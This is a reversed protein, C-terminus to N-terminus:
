KTNRKCFKKHDMWHARQHESSCYRALGGCGGACMALPSATSDDQGGIGGAGGAGGDGDGDDGDCRRTRGCGPLACSMHTHLPDRLFSHEYSPLPATTVGGAAIAEYIPRVFAIEPQAAVTQRMQKAYEVFAVRVEETYDRRQAASLKAAVHPPPAAQVRAASVNIGGRASWRGLCEVLCAFAYTLPRQTRVTAGAGGLCAHLRTQAGRVEPHHLALEDIPANGRGDDTSIEHLLNVALSGLSAALSVSTGSPALVVGAEKWDGLHYVLPMVDLLQALGFRVEVLCQTHFRTSHRILHIYHREIRLQSTTSTRPFHAVSQRM